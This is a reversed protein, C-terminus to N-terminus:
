NVASTVTFTASPLLKQNRKNDTVTLKLTYQGPELGTLPLLKEVALQSASGPHQPDILKAVDESFDIVTENSENKVVEYQISGNPKKTTEDPQFNYLQIYIGMKQDRTFTANMQPRVKSGGIIFPELSGIKKTPIKELVDALILSSSSLRDDDLRPVELAVPQRIANGGVTDRALVDLKYKGPPLFLTKQYIEAGQAGKQLMETPLPISLEQSFSGGPVPRRAISTIVGELEINATSVGDKDKFQLDKRDFQVTIATLVSSETIPIFDARVKIPLINFKITSSVLAELDKFKIAPAKQLNVFQELRTFQNMSAPLPQSGTGLTTGDTRTFRDAKCALGM